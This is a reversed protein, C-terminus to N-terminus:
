KKKRGPKRTIGAEKRYVSILLKRLVYSIGFVIIILGLAKDLEGARIFYDRFKGLYDGFFVTGYAVLIFAMMFLAIRFLFFMKEKM